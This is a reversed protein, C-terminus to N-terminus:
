FFEMSNRPSVRIRMSSCLMGAPSGWYELIAQRGRLPEFFPAVQCAGGDTYLEAAARADRSAWARGCAELWQQLASAHM